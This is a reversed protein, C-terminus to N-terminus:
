GNSNKGTGPPGTMLIGKLPRIGLSQIESHNKIFDLAEKLEKIGSNQGGIDNFSIEQKRKPKTTNGFGKVMGRTQAMYFIIAGFALLFIVPIVDYGVVLGFVLLAAGVGLSIEKLM